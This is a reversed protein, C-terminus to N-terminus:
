IFLGQQREWLLVQSQHLAIPNTITDEDFIPMQSKGPPGTTLTIQKGPWPVLIGCAVSRQWFFFFDTDIDLIDM